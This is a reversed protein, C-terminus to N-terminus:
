PKVSPQAPAEETPLAGQVTARVDTFSQATNLLSRFPARLTINFKFPLGTAKVPIASGTPNVPAENTGSFLVTSVIEGDLEGDMEIALANYKLSKLADFAIRGAGGIDADSVEGVYALTGGDRSVLKGGVIRGGKENFLLPLSGDFKGTVAFNRFDFQQIFQAADLGKVTLTFIRDSPKSFDLLTPELVLDGGSFPWAGHEIKVHQDPLLQYHIVGDKVAVGPNMEGISAVQGPPTTMALLDDFAIRGKINHVQGFAASMGIGDTEFTGDSTVGSPGWRIHGRGRVDGGVNAIIGLTLPTLMEPQLEDGFALRPVDLVADGRAADLDHRLSVRALRSTNQLRTLAADGTIVGGKLALRISRALVPEFRRNAAADRVRASPADLHLVGTAYRWRGSARDILLPVGALNGGANRLTGSLTSIGGSGDLGALDLRTEGSPQRMVLATQGLSFALTPATTTGGIRVGAAQSRVSLPADGMRGTLNLRDVTIGGALMGKADGTLLAGDPRGCLPLQTKGLRFSAVQLAEFAITSCRQVGGVRFSGDSGFGADVPMALGRVMGDALPGSLSIAATFRGYGGNWDFRTGNLALRAGGAEYPSVGALMRWAGPGQPSFDLRADPLGGGSISLRGDPQLSGDPWKFSFLRGSGTIRAGSASQLSPNSLAIRGASGTVSLGLQSSGDSRRMARQLASALHRYLPAVPAGELTEASRAVLKQMPPAAALGQWRVAGVFEASPGDSAAKFAGEAFLAALSATGPRDIGRATARLRGEVRDLTEPLQASIRATAPGGTVGKCNVSSLGLPGDLGIVRDRMSVTLLGRASALACDQQKLRPAALALKGDFGDALNGAGNAVMGVAGAETALHLRVNRLGVGLDPLRFPEGSPAPRLRDLAGLSLGRRDLRGRVLVDELEVGGIHAGTLGWGIDVRMRRAILDPRAPDGLALRSLTAGGASLRDITYRAPVGRRALERDIIQTAIPARQSWLALLGLGTVGLGIALRRGRRSIPRDEAEGNATEFESM